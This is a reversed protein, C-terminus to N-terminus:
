RAKRIKWLKENLKKMAKMTVPNDKKGPYARMFFTLGSQIDDIEDVTLELKVVDKYSVDDEGRRFTQDDM